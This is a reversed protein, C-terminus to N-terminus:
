NSIKTLPFQKDWGQIIQALHTQRVSHPPHGGGGKKNGLKELMSMSAKPDQGMLQLTWAAVYDCFIEEERDQSIVRNGYRHGMEHSLLAVFESDTLKIIAKRDLFINGNPHSYAPERDAIDLICIQVNADHIQLIQLILTKRNPSLEGGRFRGLYGYSRCDCDYKGTYNENQRIYSMLEMLRATDQEWNAVFFDNATPVPKFKAVDFNRAEKRERWTMTTAFSTNIILLTLCFMSIAKTLIKM